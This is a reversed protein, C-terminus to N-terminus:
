SFFRDYEERLNKRLTNELEAKHEQFCAFLEEVTQHKWEALPLSPLPAVVFTRAAALYYYAEEKVFSALHNHIVQPTTHDLDVDIEMHEGREAVCTALLVSAFFEWDNGMWEDVTTLLQDFREQDNM